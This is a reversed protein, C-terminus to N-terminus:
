ARPVHDGELSEALTRTEESLSGPMLDYRESFEDLVAREIRGPDLSGLEDELSGVSDPEWDLGLAEYVPM